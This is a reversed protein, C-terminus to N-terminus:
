IDQITIWPRAWYWLEPVGRADAPPDRAAEGIRASRRIKLLVARHQRRRRCAGRECSLRHQAVSTVVGSGSRAVVGAAPLGQGVPTTRPPSTMVTTSQISYFQAAEFKQDLDEAFLIVQGDASLVPAKRHSRRRPWFPPAPNGGLAYATIIERRTERHQKNVWIHLAGEFVPETLDIRGLYGQPTATLTIQGSARSDHPFLRALVSSTIWPVEILANTHVLCCVFM